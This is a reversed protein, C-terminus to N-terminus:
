KIFDTLYDARYCQVILKYIEIVQKMVFKPDGMIKDTMAIIANSGPNAYGGKIMTKLKEYGTMTKDDRLKNFYAMNENGIKEYVSQFIEEKFKFHHYIAGQFAV